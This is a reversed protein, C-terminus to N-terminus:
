MYGRNASWLEVHHSQHHVLRVRTVVYLIGKGKTGSVNWHESTCCVKRLVECSRHVKRKIAGIGLYTYVVFVKASSCNECPGSIILDDQGAGYITQLTSMVYVFQM